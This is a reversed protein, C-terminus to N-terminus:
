ESDAKRSPADSTALTCPSESLPPPPHPQYHIELPHPPPPPRTSTILHILTPHRVHKHCIFHYSLYIFHVDIHKQFLLGLPSILWTQVNDFLHKLAIVGVSEAERTTQLELVGITHITLYPHAASFMRLLWERRTRYRMSAGADSQNPWLTIFYICLSNNKM